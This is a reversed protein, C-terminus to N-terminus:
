LEGINIKQWEQHHNKFAKNSGVIYSYFMNETKRDGAQAVGIAESRAQIEVRSDDPPLNKLPDYPIPVRSGDGKVYFYQVSGWPHTGTNEKFQTRLIGNPPIEYVRKGNEYKEPQGSKKNFVIVVPGVYGVPILHIEDEARSLAYWDILFWGIAIAVVGALLGLGILM